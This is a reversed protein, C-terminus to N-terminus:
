VINTIIPKNLSRSKSRSKSKNITIIPKNLSRSKSKSSLEKKKRSIDYKMKKKPKLYSRQTQITLEM